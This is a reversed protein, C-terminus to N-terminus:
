PSLEDEHHMGLTGISTVGSSSSATESPDVLVPPPTIRSWEDRLVSAIKDEDDKDQYTEHSPSSLVKSDEYFDNTKDEPLYPVSHNYVQCQLDWWGYEAASCKDISWSWGYIIPAYVTLSWIVSALLATALQIRYKPICDFTMATLLISFYLAVYYANDSQESSTASFYFVMWALFLRGAEHDYRVMWSQGISPHWGRQVALLTVCKFLMYTVLCALGGYWILVNGMSIIQRHDPFVAYVVPEVFCTGWNRAKSASEWFDNTARLEESYATMANVYEIFKVALSPPRYSVLSVKSHPPTPHINTEAYWLSAEVNGLAACTVEHQYYGWKPLHTRHSFLYCGSLLHKLRIVSSIAQWQNLSDGQESAPDFVEIVWLDNLDGPYGDAGYASVEFQWEADSVPAPINHSHLFKKTVAHQLRIVTSNDFLVPEFEHSTADWKFNNNDHCTENLRLVKQTFADDLDYALLENVQHCTDSDSHNTSNNTSNLPHEVFWYNNVDRFAYLSVQQQQSGQPYFEHHSHLYGHTKLHRLSIISSYSVNAMIPMLIEPNLAAQFNGDVYQDGDGSLPTLYLHVICLGIFLLMTSLAYVAYQSVFGSVATVPNTLANNWWWRYLCILGLYTLMNTGLKRDCAFLIGCAIGTPISGSLWKLSIPRQERREQKKALYFTIVAMFFNGNKLSLIGQETIYTSELSVLSAGLFASLSRSQCYCRLTIYTFIATLIGAVITILRFAANPYLTIEFSPASNYNTFYKGFLYFFLQLVPVEEEIFFSRKSYNDIRRLLNVEPKVAQRNILKCLPLRAFVSIIVVIILIKNDITSNWHDKYHTYSLKVGPHWKGLWLGTGRQPGLHSERSTSDATM